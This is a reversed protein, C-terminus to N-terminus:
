LRGFRDEFAAKEGAALLRAQAPWDDGGIGGQFTGLQAVM